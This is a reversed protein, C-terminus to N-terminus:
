CMGFEIAIINEGAEDCTVNFWQCVNSGSLHRQDDSICPAPTPALEANCVEWGDGNFIFYNAAMIYRQIVDLENEPCVQASDVNVLWNFAENYSTGPTLIVAEPTIDNVIALLM